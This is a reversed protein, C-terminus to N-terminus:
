DSVKQKVLVWAFFPAGLFGTLIGLPIEQVYLNRALTDIFLLFIAGILAALPLTKLNNDGILLRALHPIILGLWGITGSLCVASATLLTAAIVMITREVRINAGIMQAERDGLSLVNIRWRMAFLMAITLFIIPALLLLNHYEAKTLSGMQWYVIDALQTEPDALYKILGLCAGMFGSVVIGALVLIITTDRKLLKPLALTMSVAIIGGIFAFFQIGFMGIGLLIAIAAGICAGSSVGLLDPSVLPNRFIGQYTVGAVALASGVLIAALIRPLRLNFIINTHVSNDNQQLLSHLVDPLPIYFRGVSLAILSMLVLLILLACMVARYKQM